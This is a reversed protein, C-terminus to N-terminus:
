HGHNYLRLQFLSVKLYKWEDYVASTQRVVKNAFPSTLKFNFTPGFNM